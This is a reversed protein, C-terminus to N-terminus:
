HPSLSVQLGASTDLLCGHNVSAALSHLSPIHLKDHTLALLHQRSSSLFRFHPMLPLPVTPRRVYASGRMM